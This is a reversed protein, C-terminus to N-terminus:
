LKDREWPSDGADRHLKGADGALLTEVDHRATDLMRDFMLSADVDDYNRIKGVIGNAPTTEAFEIFRPLDATLEVARELTMQGDEIRSVQDPFWRRDVLQEGAREVLATEVGGAHQDGRESSFEILPEYFWRFAWRELRSAELGAIISKRHVISGHVDGVYVAEPKLWDLVANAFATVYRTLLPPTLDISLGFPLGWTLHGYEVPPGAVFGEIDDALQNLVAYSQITDTALPLHPGHEEVATDM